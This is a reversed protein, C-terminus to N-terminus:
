KIEFAASRTVSKGAGDAATVELRYLGPALPAVPLNLGVPITSKGAALSDLKMSGGDWKV